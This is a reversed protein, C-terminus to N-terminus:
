AGARQMDTLDDDKEKQVAKCLLDYAEQASRAVAGDNAAQSNCVKLSEACFLERGAPIVREKLPTGCSPCKFDSM